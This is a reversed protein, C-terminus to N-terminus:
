IRPMFETRIGLIKDCSVAADIVSTFLKHNNTSLSERLDDGLQLGAHKYEKIGSEFARKLAPNEKNAKIFGDYWVMRGQGFQFLENHPFDRGVQVIPAYIWFCRAAEEFSLRPLNRTHTSAAATNVTNSTAIQPQRGLSTANPTIKNAETVSKGQVLQRQDRIEGGAKVAFFLAVALGLGVWSAHTRTPKLIKGIIWGVIAAGALILAPAIVMGIFGADLLLDFFSLSSYTAGRQRGRWGM